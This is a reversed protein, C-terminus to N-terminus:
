KNIAFTFGMQTLTRYLKAIPLGVVSFYDGHIEKVLTAGYGQIGYSGAKDFPEGTRIYDEIEKETLEWFTVKTKEYFVQKKNEHFICTGTYVFHTNGSLLTLMQKAEDYSKPKGLAEDQYFVLTDAGIVYADVNDKAVAEAKRIALTMVQEEPALLAEVTEDVERTIIDFQPQVQKLIEKRRPSSSALILRAMKKVQRDKHILPSVCM